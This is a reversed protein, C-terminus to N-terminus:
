LTVLEPPLHAISNYDELRVAAPTISLRTISTNWPVDLPERHLLALLIMKIDAHMVYAVRANTAAYDAITRSLLQQARLQAAELTEEAQSRWWGEGDIEPSVIYTAFQAAIQQRSLGPRGTLGIGSHGSVCGGREHLEARVHPALGTAIRLHETTQLTRLFPSTVLETLRLKKVAQALRRAQEHGTETLPPDEVRQEEPLSNNLSQAHRILYLQM